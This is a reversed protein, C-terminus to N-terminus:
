PQRRSSHILVSEKALSGIEAAMAETLHVRRFTEADIGETSRFTAEIVALDTGRVLDELEPCMGTDGTVAVSEGELTLRYGMAPVPDLVGGGEVSGSHQLPFGEVALGDIDIVQHAHLETMTIDFPISDPYCRRFNHVTAFAETCGEPAYVPLVRKRGIMRMFGLLTHLGGMHDFHGHTYFIASIRSLDIEKDLLDRLVGDGTDILVGTEPGAIWVHQAVGAQSFLVEVSLRQGQWSFRSTVGNVM